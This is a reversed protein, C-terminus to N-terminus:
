VYMKETRRWPMDNCSKISEHAGGNIKFKESAHLLMMLQKLKSRKCDDFLKVWSTENNAVSNLERIQNWVYAWCTDLGSIKVNRARSGEETKPM